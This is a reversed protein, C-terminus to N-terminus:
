AWAERVAPATAVVRRLRRGEADFLMARAPDVRLGAEAGLGLGARLAPDARLVVRHGGGDLTVQVYIEHGLNESHAVRGSFIPDQRTLTLAEPRLGLSLARRGPELQLPLARGMVSVRGASDSEAPLVNIKPSGIFEAVRLDVPDEYIRAPTDCQLIEGGMMVAIRDSMTMAEVQDHTVYIFTADLRRHLEAIETRTHVRLKADLNSLPEDLLFAAPSRVLARGLAVRQRQGGSLQGPKRDLLRDIELTGAADQVRDEIERLRATTGPMFRGVLPLRQATSLRRMRLPVAINEAVTLHPYLAYSQFVMSLNRDAARLGDVPAGAIEVSGASQGELGAIIRLLTSKGCGSPGVLSVFEGDGVQLDVGRLVDTEKFSKRIGRLTVTAM